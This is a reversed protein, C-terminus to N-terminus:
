TSYGAKAAGIGSRGVIAIVRKVGLLVKKLNPTGPIFHVNKGCNRSCKHPINPDRDNAVGMM